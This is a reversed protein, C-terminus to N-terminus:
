HRGWQGWLCIVINTLDLNTNTTQIQQRMNSQLNASPKRVDKAKNAQYTSSHFVEIVFDWLDLAHIGDMRLGSFIAVTRDLIIVALFELKQELRQAALGEFQQDRRRRTRRVLHIPTNAESTEKLHEHMIKWERQAEVFDLRESMPGQVGIGHFGSVMEWGSRIAVAGCVDRRESQASSKRSDWKKQDTHRQRVIIGPFIKVPRALNWPITLTFSKLSRTRSCSSKSAESHKRLLKTRCPYSQIWQSFLDQVVVACRHNNRSECNDSLVKHDATILDGFIEARLVVRGIRRRCPARTIQTRQCIECNRDKPFHTYVSHKGLDASRAPTAELSSVHSSNAHSDRHEVVRDDVLNERFEQLWGPIDSYPSGQVQEHDENQNPKPIETPENFLEEPTSSTYSNGRAQRDM